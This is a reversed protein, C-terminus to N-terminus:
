GSAALFDVSREVLERGQTVVRRRWEQSRPCFAEKLKQKAWHDLKKDGYHHHQNEARLDRLMRFGSYTGYEVTLCTLERGTFLQRFVGSGGGGHRYGMTKAETKSPTVTVGLKRSLAERRDPGSRMFLSQEGFSGIGTHFDVVMLKDIQLLTSKDLWDIYGAAEPELCTGGYYIGKPYHYQGGTVAQKVCAYGFRLWALFLRFYYFDFSPPRPPNFFSNLATYREPEGQWGDPSFHFNRNLDVNNGNFRRLNAMGYPNLVHVMVLAMDEALEPLHDLAALQVASGAFGEVGHVGSVTLLARGPSRTGFWAIDTCLGEGAQLGLHSLEAGAREAEAIFRSRAEQYDSSFYREPNVIPM